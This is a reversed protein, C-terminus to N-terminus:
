DNGEDERRPTKIWGNQGWTWDENTFRCYPLCFDKDDWTSHRVRSFPNGLLLRDKDLYWTEPTIHVDIFPKYGVTKRASVAFAHRAFTYDHNKWLMALEEDSHPVLGFMREFRSESFVIALDVDRPADHTLASGVLYIPANIARANWKAWARLGLFIDWALPVYAQHSEATVPRKNLVPSYNLYAHREADTM